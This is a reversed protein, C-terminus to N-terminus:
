ANQVSTKPLNNYVLWISNSFKKCEYNRCFEFYSSLGSIKPKKPPNHGMLAEDLTRAAPEPTDGVYHLVSGLWAKADSNSGAAIKRLGSIAYALLKENSIGSFPDALGEFDETSIPTRRQLGAYARRLVFKKTNAPREYVGLYWAQHDLGVGDFHVNLTLEIRERGATQSLTYSAHIKRGVGFGFRGQGGDVTISLVPDFGPQTLDFWDEVEQHTAVGNQSHDSSIQLFPQDWFQILRHHSPSYRSDTNNEGVFQWGGNSNQLFRLYEVTHSLQSGRIILIAQRPKSIRETEISCKVDESFNSGCPAV